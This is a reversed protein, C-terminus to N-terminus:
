WLIILIIYAVRLAIQRTNQLCAIAEELQFAFTLSAHLRNEKSLFNM